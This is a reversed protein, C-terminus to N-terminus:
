SILRMKVQDSSQAIEKAVPCVFNAIFSVFMEQDLKLKILELYRLATEVM